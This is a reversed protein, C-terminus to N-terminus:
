KLGKQELAEAQARGRRGIYNNRWATWLSVVTLLVASLDDGFETPITQFGAINLVANILVIVLAVVRTISGKDM